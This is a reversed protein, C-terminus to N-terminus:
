LQSSFTKYIHRIHLPDQHSEVLASQQNQNAGKNAQTAERFFHGTISLPFEHQTFFRLTKIKRMHVM